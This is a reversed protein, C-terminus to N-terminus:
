FKKRKHNSYMNKIQIKGNEVKKNDLYTCSSIQMLGSFDRKSMPTHIQKEGIM